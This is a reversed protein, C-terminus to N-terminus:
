GVICSKFAAGMILVALSSFLIVKTGIPLRCELSCDYAALMSTRTHITSYCANCVQHPSVRNEVSTDGSSEVAVGAVV